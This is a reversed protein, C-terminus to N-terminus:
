HKPYDKKDIKLMFIRVGTGAAIKTKSENHDSDLCYVASPLDIM